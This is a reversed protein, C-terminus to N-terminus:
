AKNQCDCFQGVSGWGSIEISLVLTESASGAPAYGTFVTVIQSLKADITTFETGWIIVEIRKKYSAFNAKDTRTWTAYASNVSTTLITTNSSVDITILAGRGGCNPGGETTAAETTTPLEPTTSVESPM